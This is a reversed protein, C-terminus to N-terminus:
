VEKRGTCILWEDREDIWQQIRAIAKDPTTTSKRFSGKLKYSVVHMEVIVKMGPEYYRQEREPSIMFMFYLGNQWIGGSWKDEADLAGRVVVSSCLNDDTTIKLWEASLAAQCADGIAQMKAPVGGVDPRDRDHVVPM